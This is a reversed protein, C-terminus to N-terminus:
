SGKWMKQARKSHMLTYWYMKTYHTSIINQWYTFLQLSLCHLLREWLVLFITANVVIRKSRNGVSIMETSNGSIKKAKPQFLIFRTCLPWVSIAFSTFVKFWYSTAAFHHLFPQMWFSIGMAIIVLLSNSNAPSIIESLCDSLEIRIVFLYTWHFNNLNNATVNTLNYNVPEQFNWFHSIHWIM